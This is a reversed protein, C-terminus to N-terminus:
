LATELTPRVPFAKDVAAIQLVRLIGPQQAVISVSGGAAEHARAAVILARVAASDLFTCDTLDIVLRRGGTAGEVAQEFTPTTALDLEGTVRVVSAEDSITELTM